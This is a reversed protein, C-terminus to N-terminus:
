GDQAKLWNLADGSETFIEVRTKSWTSAISKAFRCYDFDMVAPQVVAMCTGHPYIADMNKFTQAVDTAQVKLNAENLDLLIKHRKFNSLLLATANKGAAMEFNDVDGTHCIHVIEDKHFLEIEYAM